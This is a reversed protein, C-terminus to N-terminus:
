VTWSKLKFDEASAPLTVTGGLPWSEIISGNKYITICFEISEQSKNAILKSLPIALEIVKQAAIEILKENKQQNIPTSLEFNEISGGNELKFLAKTFAPSKFNIEFTLGENEKSNLKYNTDIRIYLKDFDFGYYFSRILTEVQHM